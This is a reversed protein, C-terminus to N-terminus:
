WGTGRSIGTCWVMRSVALGLSMGRGAAAEVPLPMAAQLNSM